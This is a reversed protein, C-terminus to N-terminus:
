QYIMLNPQVSVTLSKTPLSLTIKPQVSVTLSKTPLSLTIIESKANVVIVFHSDCVIAM